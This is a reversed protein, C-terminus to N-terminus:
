QERGEAVEAIEQEFEEREGEEGKRLKAHKTASRSSERGKPASKNPARFEKRVAFGDM